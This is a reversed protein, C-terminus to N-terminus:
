NSSPTPGTSRRTVQDMVRRYAKELRARMAFFHPNVERCLAVVETLQSQTLRDFDGVEWDTMRALESISADDCLFDGVIDEIDTPAAAQWERIEGVTMEHSTIMLGDALEKRKTIRQM